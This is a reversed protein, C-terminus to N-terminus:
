ENNAEAKTLQAFIEELEAEKRLITWLQWHKKKVLELIAPRLDEKLNSKLVFYKGKTAKGKEESVQTIGALKKLDALVGAGAIEVEVIQENGSLRSLQHPKGDAVVKGQHIIIVRNCMRAVEPLVHSCIIVTREKGLFKVLSHIERRQNPDLGETPEDLLLIEPQALIAQALGVRQRFGKSLQAIPRYYVSALNAKEIVFRLTDKKAEVGKLDAWLKLYEEVTLEDYLPNDEPLYGIKKKIERDNGELDKGDILIKGSTTPLVGAIMRVTTTKGAGNPGLLGVIEGEKISLSIEDVAVTPGFKKTVKELQIM